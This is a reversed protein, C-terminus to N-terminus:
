EKERLILAIGFLHLELNDNIVKEWLEHENPISRHVIEYKFPFLSLTNKLTTERVLPIEPELYSVRFLLHNLQISCTFFNAALEKGREPDIKNLKL